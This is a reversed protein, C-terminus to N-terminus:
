ANWGSFLKERFESWEAQTVAEKQRLML